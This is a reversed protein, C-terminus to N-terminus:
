YRDAPASRNARGYDRDYDKNIRQAANWIDNRLIEKRESNMSGLGLATALINAIKYDKEHLIARMIDSRKDINSRYKDGTFIKTLLTMIKRGEPPYPGSPQRYYDEGRLREERAASRFGSTNKKTHWLENRNTNNMGAYASMDSTSHNAPRSPDGFFRDHVQTLLDVFKTPSESYSIRVPPLHKRPSELMSSSPGFGGGGRM